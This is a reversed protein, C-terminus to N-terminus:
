SKWPPPYGRPQPPSDIPLGKWSRPDSYYLVIAKQRIRRYFRNPIEDPGSRSMREVVAIRQKEDLDPFSPGDSKNLWQIGSELLLRFHWSETADEWLKKDINFDTASGGHEDRPLLTDLFVALTKLRLNSPQPSQIAAVTDESLHVGAFFVGVAKLLCRRALNFSLAM